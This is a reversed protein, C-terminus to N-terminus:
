DMRNNFNCSSLIDFSYYFTNVRLLNKLEDETEMYQLTRDQSIAFLQIKPRPCIDFKGHVAFFAAENDM